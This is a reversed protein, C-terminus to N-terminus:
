FAEAHCTIEGGHSLHLHLNKTDAPAEIISHIIVPLLLEDLKHQIEKARAHILNFQTLIGKTFPTTYVLLFNYQSRIRRALQQLYTDVLKEKASISLNQFHIAPTQLLLTDPLTNNITQTMEMSNTTPKLLVPHDIQPMDTVVLQLLSEEEEIAKSMDAFPAMPTVHAQEHQQYILIFLHSQLSYVHQSQDILRGQTLAQQLYYLIEVEAYETNLLIITTATYQRVHAFLLQLFLALNTMKMDLMLSPADEGYILGHLAQATTRKGISPEGIFLLSSSVQDSLGLRKEALYNQIKQLAQSQGYITKQLKNALQLLVEPKKLDPANAQTPYWDLMVQKLSHNLSLTTNPEVQRAAHTLVKDLLIRYSTPPAIKSILNNASTMLQPFFHEDFEFQHCAPHQKIYLELYNTLETQSYTPMFVPDFYARLMTIGALKEYYIEPNCILGLHSSRKEIAQMMALLCVSWLEPRREILTELEDLFLIVPQQHQEHALLILQLHEAFQQHSRLELDNLDLRQISRASMKTLQQLCTTRGSGFPGVLIPSKVQERAIIELLKQLTITRDFLINPILHVPQTDTLSM